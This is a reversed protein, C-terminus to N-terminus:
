PSRPAGFTRLASKESSMESFTRTILSPPAHHCTIAWLWPATGLFWLVVSCVKLSAQPLYSIKARFCPMSADLCGRFLLARSLRPQSAM